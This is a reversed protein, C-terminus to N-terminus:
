QHELLEPDLQDARVYRLFFYQNIKRRHKDSKVRNVLIFGALIMMIMIIVLTFSMVIFTSMM